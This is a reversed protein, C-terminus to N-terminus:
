EAIDFMEDDFFEKLTIDFGYCINLITSTKTDKNKGKLITSITSCPVGSAKFLDWERMGKLQLYYQIRKGVAESITM